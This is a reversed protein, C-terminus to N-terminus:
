QHTVWVKDGVVAGALGQLYVRFTGIVRVRVRYGLATVRAKTMANATASSASM